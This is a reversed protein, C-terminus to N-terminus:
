KRIRELYVKLKRKEDHTVYFECRHLGESGSQERYKRSREAPTLPTLKFEYPGRRKVVGAQLMTKLATQTVDHPVGAMAAIETVSHYKRASLVAHIKDINLQM